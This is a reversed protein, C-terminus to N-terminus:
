QGWGRIGHSQEEARAMGKGQIVGEEEAFPHLETHGKIHLDTAEEPFGEYVMFEVM